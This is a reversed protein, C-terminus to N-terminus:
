EMLVSKENGAGMLHHTFQPQKKLLFRWGWLDANGEVRSWDFYKEFQPQYELLMLWLNDGIAPSIVQWDFLEEAQPVHQLLMSIETPTLFKALEEVRGEPFKEKLVDPCRYHMAVLEVRNVNQWSCYKVLKPHVGLVQSWPLSCDSRYKFWPFDEAKEPSERFSLFERIGDVTM